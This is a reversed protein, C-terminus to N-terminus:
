KQRARSLPFSVPVFQAEFDPGQYVDPELNGTILKQHYEQLNGTVHVQNINLQSDMICGDVLFGTNKGQKHILAFFDTMNSPVNEEQNESSEEEPMPSRAHYHIDVVFGDVTKKLQMRTSNSSEIYEFGSNQFFVKKEEDSIPKYEKEEYELEQSFCNILNDKSSFFM